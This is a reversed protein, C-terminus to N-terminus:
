WGVVHPLRCCFSGHIAVVKSLCDMNEYGPGPSKEEDKREIKGSRLSKVRYQLYCCNILSSGRYWHDGATRILWANTCHTCISLDLRLCYNCLELTWVGFQGYQRKACACFLLSLLALVFVFFSRVFSFSCFLFITNRKLYHTFPALM